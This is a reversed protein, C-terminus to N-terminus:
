PREGGTLFSRVAGSLPGKNEADDFVSHGSPFNVATLRDGPVGAQDLAFRGAYAATSIDYYGAAWFLRLDPNAAMAEALWPTTDTLGEHDWADNVDFTLPVYTETTQFGLDTKFYIDVPSPPRPGTPAPASGAAPAPASRGVGGGGLAPDDHPRTRTLDRVGTVRTDLQGTRLNQDALLGFMFDQASVRLNAAEIQDAPLGILASMQEAVARRRSAPLSGGQILATVYDTRAFEVAQNFMQDASRGARDIRNHYWATTAFTPLQVVNSLVGDKAAEGVLAFLLVGDFRLTPDNKLIAAARVTGYSQGVLFRPSEERGNIELWQRVMSAVAKADGSRSWFYAGDGFPRSYGTGVPDIFVLDAVDLLSHPNDAFGAQGHGEAGAPAPRVRPGFAGFHLPTSSAGPGGNFLFVVPRRARDAADTRVYTTSVISAAPVGDANPVFIERVTAEYPIVAGGIRVSDRVSSVLPARQTQPAAATSAPQALASGPACALAVAACAAVTIRHSLSRLTRSPM